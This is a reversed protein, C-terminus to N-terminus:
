DFDGQRRGIGNARPRAALDLIGFGDVVPCELWFWTAQKTLTNKTRDAIVFTGATLILADFVFTNYGCGGLPHFVGHEYELFSLISFLSPCKFPSMGLYKAQFSFAIALRPDKFYSSLEQGLSRWPKLSPLAGLVSPALLDLPGNFPSELVPRFRELKKRNDNIYRTIAGRDGPSFASIQQEMAVLDPTADIKGGAAFSIRYQPDLRRMPIEAMLDFGASHFIESLVRPYLFFTPGIDFRFGDQEFTATRGGVWSQKELITVRAGAKALQLASALGGPGAGVIIVHPSTM